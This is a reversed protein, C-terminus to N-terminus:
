RFNIIIITLSIHDFLTSFYLMRKEILSFNSSDTLSFLFMWLHDSRVMRDGILYDDEAEKEDDCPNVTVTDSQKRFFTQAQDFISVTEDSMRKFISKINTFEDFLCNENLGPLFFLSWV